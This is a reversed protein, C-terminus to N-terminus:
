ANSQTYRNVLESLSGVLNKQDMDPHGKFYEELEDAGDAGEAQSARLIIDKLVLADDDENGEEGSTIGAGGQSAPISKDTSHKMQVSGTMGTGTGTGLYGETLKKIEDDFAM